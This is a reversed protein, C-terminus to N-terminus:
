FRPLIGENALKSRVLLPSVEFYEAANEIEDDEPPLSGLYELLTSSPCLFEQAFARQFKQRSTKARTAPMLLEDEPAILGDAILRCLEFRRGEKWRSRLIANWSGQECANRRAAPIPANPSFPETVLSPLTGVLSALQVNSIPDGNLSWIERATRAAREAREWPQGALSWTNRQSALARIQMSDLETGHTRLSDEVQILIEAASGGYEAVIEEVATRGEECANALLTDILSDPATGADFGALAEIRRVSSLAFDSREASLEHWLLHLDTGSIEFDALRALVANVFNDIVGEFEEASFICEGYERSELYRIPEWPKDGTRRAQLSVHDGDSLLTVDPWVGGGGIAALSHAMCWDAGRREPEWRLRWWNNALWIALDYASLNVFTRNSRALRDEVLTLSRDGCRLDLQGLTARAIEDGHERGLWAHIIIEFDSM